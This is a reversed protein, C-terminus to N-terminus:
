GCFIFPPSSRIPTEVRVTQDLHALLPRLRSLPHEPFRGDYQSGESLTSHFGVQMSLDSSRQVWGRLENHEVDITVRGDSLAEALVMSDRVGTTGVEQCQVKLVFSFDRFPLTLSGIYITGTPQQRTKVIQRVATCGDVCIVDLDIIAAEAAATMAGYFRRTSSVSQLDACIDPALPFYLLALADGATTLWIRTDDEEREFQFPSADFTISDLSPM